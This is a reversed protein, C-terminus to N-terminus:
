HNAKKTTTKTKRTKAGYKNTNPKNCPSNLIDELQDYFTLALSVADFIKMNTHEREWIGRHEPKYIKLEPLFEVLKTAIQEKTKADFQVFLNTIDPRTLRLFPITNVACQKSLSHTIRNALSKYKAQDNPTQITVANPRYRSLLMDFRNLARNLKYCNLKTVGWDLLNQPSDFVAYGFGDTYPSIAIVTKQHMTARKMEGINSQANQKRGKTDKPKTGM